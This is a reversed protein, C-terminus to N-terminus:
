LPKKERWLNVTLFVKERALIRSYEQGLKYYGGGPQGTSIIIHRPPAPQVFQYAVLFGVLTILIAPTFYRLYDKFTRKKL